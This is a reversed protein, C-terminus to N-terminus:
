YKFPFFETGVIMMMLYLLLPRHYDDSVRKRVAVEGNERGVVMFIQIMLNLLLLM